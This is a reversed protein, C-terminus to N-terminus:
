ETVRDGDISTAFEMVLQRGSNDYRTIVYNCYEVAREEIHYVQKNINSRYFVAEVRVFKETILEKLTRTIQSRTYQLCLKEVQGVTAGTPSMALAELIAIYRTFM